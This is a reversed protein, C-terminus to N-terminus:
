NTESDQREGADRRCSLAATSDVRGIIPAAQMGAVLPYVAAILSLGTVIVPGAITVISTITALAVSRGGRRYTDHRSASRAACRDASQRTSPLSRGDPGNGASCRAQQIVLDRPVTVALTTSPASATRIRM